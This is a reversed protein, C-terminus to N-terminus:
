LRRPGGEAGSHSITSMEGVLERADDRTRTEFSPAFLERVLEHACNTSSSPFIFIAKATTSVHM